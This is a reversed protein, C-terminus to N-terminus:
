EGIRVVDGYKDHLSQIYLHQVGQRAIYAMWFKSLKCAVPGPYKALPHFPSLRYSTISFLLASYFTAFTAAVAAPVAIQGFSLLVSLIAPLLLLLAAHVFITSFEWRKFMLHTGKIRLIIRQVYYFLTGSVLAFGVITLLADRTTLSGDLVSRLPSM